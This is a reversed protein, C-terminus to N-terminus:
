PSGIELGGMREIDTESKAKVSDTYESAIINEINRNLAEWRLVKESVSSKQAEEMDTDVSRALM